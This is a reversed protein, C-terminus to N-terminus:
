CPSDGGIQTLARRTLVRVLHSRYQASGRLNSQTPVQTAAYDAFRSIADPTLPAKFIHNADELLIARGPRAGICLRVAAAPAYGPQCDAQLLAPSAPDNEPSTMSGTEAYVGAACTLVPFDTQSNRVSLYRFHAPSKKVIIHAIVDREFGGQAYENLPVLGHKYLEVSTDMALFITLVDSFGYRGYISGGLTATNRFQVGVIHRLAERMAGETYAALGPHTELQRLSVMCGIRFAEDSEEIQDLGLRSLDIVTNVPNRSMKTWHMGGLIRNSRKQNLTWAEELSDVLRYNQITIM